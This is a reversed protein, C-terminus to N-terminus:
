MTFTSAAASARRHAVGQVPLRLMEVPSMRYRAIAQARACSVTRISLPVDHFPFCVRLSPAAEVAIEDDRRGDIEDVRLPETGQAHTTQTRGHAHLRHREVAVHVAALGEKIRDDLVDGSPHLAGGVHVDARM